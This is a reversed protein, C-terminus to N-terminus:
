NEKQLMSFMLLLQTVNNKDFGTWDNKKQHFIWEKENINIWRLNLM